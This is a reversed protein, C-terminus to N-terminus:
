PILGAKIAILTGASMFIWLTLGHLFPQIGMQKLLDRSLNLGIIFLTLVMLMKALNAVILGISRLEPIFTVLASAAVFGLIFWPRKAKGEDKSGQTWSLVVTMPLIWLARALKLTTAIKLSEHGYQMSAGVVSSTDHISLAAWYGFQDQTLNLQHAIIPFLVLAIANLTFVTALAVSIEHARAKIIPATAAIASGGCIATGITILLLTPKEVKFIKMLLYGLFFTFSIGVITYGIGERGVAGMVNLDMGAGLGIVSLALLWSALSKTKEKFPNGITLALFIGLFLAYASLM